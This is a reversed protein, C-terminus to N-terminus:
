AAEDLRGLAFHAAGSLNCARRLLARGRAGAERLVPIVRALAGAVAAPQGLRLQAEALLVTLEPGVGDNPAGSEGASMEAGVFAALESWASRAALARATSVLDDADGPTRTM